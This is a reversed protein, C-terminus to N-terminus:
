PVYELIVVNSLSGAEGDANKEVAVIYHLGGGTESVQLTIPIDVTGEPSVTAGYEWTDLVTNIEYPDIDTGGGPVDELYLGGETVLLAIESGAAASVRITHHADAVTSPSAASLAEIKPASPLAARIIAESNVQSGNQRWSEGAIVTGDAFEVTMAAGLLEYGSVSGTEHPGPASVGQISTPDVDVSFTFREGPDFDDFTVTLGDYGSDHPSVFVHSVYGTSSEGQNATFDKAVLDGATGDPDFVMDPFIGAALDFTVATIKQGAGSTNDIAFSGSKYTSSNRISGNTHIAIFAQHAPLPMSTTDGLYTLAGFLTKSFAGVSVKVDVAEGPAGTYTPFFGHIRSPSVSTLIADRGDITVSTNSLTGFERGGIVFPMGGRAHTRNPVIDYVGTGEALPNDPTALYLANSSYATGIIEGGPGQIIDLAKLNLEMEEVSKATDGTQNLQTRYTHGNWKQALLDGKIAHNFTTATYEIIGNTSPKFTTLPKRYVSDMSPEEPGLYVNQLSDYRGRNRNPHGYYMGELVLNLEDPNSPEDGETTASLSAPGYGNNPGNDTAYLKGGRTLALDFPNRFGPAYVAVDVGPEVDVINGYVQDDNYAGTETEIYRITGNFDPKSLEAKLIAASFPSEPVDGINCAPVGANTNGGVAIYLDGNNDFVMGNISHDHNSVPLGTIVPIVENFGPGDIRSVQGSYPSFGSFCSGGNAFLEGHAIYLKVITDAPNVAIGLISSNDMGSVAPIEQEDTVNYDDDLTLAVIGGGIQAVYLRGDQGWTLQTPKSVAHLERTTFAVPHPASSSYTYTFRNSEGNPTRVYVEVSSGETGAPSYLRLTDASVTLDTSPLAQGDWVVEVQGAPFFGKGVITVAGGGGPAGESPASNVIPPIASQDHSILEPPIISPSEAVASYLLRAPLDDLTNIGLRLEIAHPGANLDRPETYLEGDIFLRSEGGGEIEMRYTASRALNVRGELLVMTNEVFPSPGVAGDKESLEFGSLVEGYQPRPLPSALMALVDDPNEAPYWSTFAGPIS